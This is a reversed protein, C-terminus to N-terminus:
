NSVPRIKSGGSIEVGSDNTDRKRRKYICFCM